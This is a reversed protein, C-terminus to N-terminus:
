ARQVYFVAQTWRLVDRPMSRFPEVLRPHLEEPLEDWFHSPLVRFGHREFIPVLEAPRVRNCGYLPARGPQECLFDWAGHRPDVYRRHDTGDFYHAGFGGRRTVRALEAIAGDLDGTHELLSNSIAFDIEGGAIRLESASGIQHTILGPALGGPDGLLLRAADFRRAHAAIRKRSIPYNGVILRPDFLMAAAIKAIGRAASALDAIPELDVAYGRRAGLLLYVTLLGGPNHAGCGLDLVTKGAFRYNRWGPLWFRQFLAQTRTLSFRNGIQEASPELTMALWGALEPDLAEGGRLRAILERAIARSDWRALEDARVFTPASLAGPPAAAAEPTGGRTSPTRPADTM